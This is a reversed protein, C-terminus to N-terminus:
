PATLHDLIPSAFIGLYFALGSLLVGIVFATAGYDDSVVIAVYIGFSGLVLAFLWIPNFFPIEKDQRKSEPSGDKGTEFSHPEGIQRLGSDAIGLLGVVFLSPHSIRGHYGGVACPYPRQVCGYQGGHFVLRKCDGDLVDIRPSFGGEVYDSSVGPFGIRSLFPIVSRGGFLNFGVSLTAQLYNRNGINLDNIWGGGPRKVGRGEFSVLGTQFVDCCIVKNGSLINEGRLSAERIQADALRPVTGKTIIVLGSAALRGAHANAIDAILGVSCLMFAAWAARRRV